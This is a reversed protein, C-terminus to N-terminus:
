QKLIQYGGYCSYQQSVQWVNFRDSLELGLDWPELTYSIKHYFTKESISVVWTVVDGYPVQLKLAACM